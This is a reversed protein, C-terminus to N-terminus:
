AGLVQLRVVGAVELDGLDPQLGSRNLRGPGRDEDRPAQDRRARAPVNGAAFPIRRLARELTSGRQPVPQHGGVARGRPEIHRLEHRAPVDNTRLCAGNAPVRPRESERVLVVHVDVELGRRLPQRADECAKAVIFILVGGGQVQHTPRLVENRTELRADVRPHVLDREAHQASVRCLQIQEHFLDVGVQARAGAPGGRARLSGALSGSGIRCYRIWRPTCDTKRTRSMVTRVKASTRSAGPPGAIRMFGSREAACRSCNRRFRPRSRGTAIWYMSQSDLRARPSRPVDYEEPVATLVTTSSRRAAVSRKVPVANPRASTTATGSPM